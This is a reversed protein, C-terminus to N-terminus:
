DQTPFYGEVAIIYGVTLFPQRIDVSTPTATGTSTLQAAIAPKALTIGAAPSPAYESDGPTAAWYADKPNSLTATEGSVKVKGSGAHTHPPMNSANLTVQNAGGTAGIPINADTGLPTRGNLNPLNFTRVGDGGYTTGIVAYLVQNDAITMSRGDCWCWGSPEYTGTFMRIEGILQEM